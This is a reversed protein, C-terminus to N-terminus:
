KTWYGDWLGLVLAALGEVVPFSALGALLRVTWSWPMRLSVLFQPMMIAIMVLAQGV